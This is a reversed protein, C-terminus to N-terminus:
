EGSLDFIKNVTAILAGDADYLTFTMTVSTLDGVVSERYAYGNAFAAISSISKMSSVKKSGPPLTAKKEYNDYGEVAVLFYGPKVAGDENNKITYQFKTVKGWTDKWDIEVDGIAFSVKGYTTVVTEEEAPEAEPEPESEAEPEAAPESTEVDATETSDTDTTNNEATIGGTPTVEKESEGSFLSTFFGSVSSIFSADTESVAVEVAPESVTTACDCGVTLRGLFFVLIILVAIIGWKLVKQPNLTFHITVEKEKHKKSKHKTEKYEEEEELFVERNSVESNEGFLLKNKDEKAMKKNKAEKKKLKEWAPHLDEM